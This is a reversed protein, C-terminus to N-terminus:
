PQPSPSKVLEDPPESLLYLTICWPPADDISLAEQRQFVRRLRLRPVEGMDLAGQNLHPLSGESRM